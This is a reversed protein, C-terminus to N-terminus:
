LPDHAFATALAEASSAGREVVKSIGVSSGLRAPKVFLPALEASVGAPGGRAPAGLLEGQPLGRAAM